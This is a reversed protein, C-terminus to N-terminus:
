RSRLANSQRASRHPLPRGNQIASWISASKPRINGDKWARFYNSAGANDVIYQVVKRYRLIDDTDQGCSGLVWRALRDIGPGFGKEGMRAMAPKGMIRELRELQKLVTPTGSKPGGSVYALMAERGGLARQTSNVIAYAEKQDADLIMVRATPIGIERLAALRRHGDILRLDPTALMPVLQGEDQISQTLPGIIKVRIAPNWKAVNLDDLPVDYIEGVEYRM